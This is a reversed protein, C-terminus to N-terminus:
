ASSSEVDSDASTFVEDATETDPNTFSEHKYFKVPESYDFILGSQLLSMNLVM